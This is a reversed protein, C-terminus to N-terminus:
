DRQSVEFRYERNRPDFDASTLGVNTKINTYTYQELLPPEDGPTAPWGYLEAQVPLKSHTDVYVRGVQYILGPQQQHHAVEVADCEMAGVQVGHCIRVEINAPDLTTKENKWIDMASEIIKAIGVETIPYRNTDMVKPDEPSLTMTGVISKLGVEHVILKGNNQGAVFIVERGATRKSHGHFYVSFPNQRFKMDMTQTLLRGHVLETKTFVATYDKVNKLARVSPQVFEVAADLPHRGQDSVRRESIAPVPSAIPSFRHERRTNEASGSHVASLWAVGVLGLVVGLAPWKQRMSSWGKIKNLITM